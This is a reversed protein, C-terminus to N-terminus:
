KLNLIPELEAEFTRPWPLEVHISELGEITSYFDKNGRSGIYVRKGDFHSYWNLTEATLQETVFQNVVDYHEVLNWQDAGIERIFNNALPQVVNKYGQDKAFRHLLFEYHAKATEKYVPVGFGSKQKLFVDRATAHGVTIGLANGATNWGSYSLIKTLDVTDALITVFEEDAKNVLLVDGIAVEKNADILEKIRHVMNEIDSSREGGVETPTNLILHIDALEEDTTIKAGASLIHKEVNEDFTTDELPAMWDKGHIGGYEIFYTPSEQFFEAVFRSVLVVDVEDAGPFISVKDQINLENVREVLLEREARHLGHPAADDQALVLYDIYGNASWDILRKNVEHNRARARLYDDLVEEPIIAELEELRERDEEFGLNHVKDYLIAWERIQNYYILSEESLASIALRQITDYVYIPKNPYREQLEKIVEIGELADDLPKEGTRSAILGGYALMSSSLVFGDADEANNLVWEVIEESNGPTNFYGIIEKPPTIVQIGASNGVQQPFYVNAPRDDLPVLVLKALGEKEAAHVIPINTVVLVIVLFISLKKLLKM